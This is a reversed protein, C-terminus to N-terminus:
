QVAESRCGLKPFNICQWHLTSFIHMPESSTSKVFTEFWVFCRLGSMRKAAFTQKCIASKNLQIIIPLSFLLAQLMNLQSCFNRKDTYVMILRHTGRFVTLLIQLWLDLLVYYCKRISQAVHKQANLFTKICM